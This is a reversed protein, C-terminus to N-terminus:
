AAAKTLPDYAEEPEAPEIRETRRPTASRDAFQTAGHLVAATMALADSRFSRM